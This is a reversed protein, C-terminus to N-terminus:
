EGSKLRRAESADIINGNFEGAMTAESFGRSHVNELAKQADAENEFSGYVYTTVGEASRV